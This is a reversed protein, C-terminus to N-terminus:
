KLGRRYIRDNIDFIHCDVVWVRNARERYCYTAEGVTESCIVGGEQLDICDAKVRMVPAELYQALVTAISVVVITVTVAIAIYKLERKLQLDDYYDKM